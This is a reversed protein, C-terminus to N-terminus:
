IQLSTKVQIDNPQDKQLIDAPKPLQALLLVGSSILM